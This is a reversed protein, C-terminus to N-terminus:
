IQKRYSIDTPKRKVRYLLCFRSSSHTPIKYRRHIHDHVFISVARAISIWRLAKNLRDDANPIKDLNWATFKLFRHQVHLQRVEEEIVAEGKEKLVVGSAHPYLAEDFLM